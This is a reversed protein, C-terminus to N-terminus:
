DANWDPVPRSIKLLEDALNLAELDNENRYPLGRAGDNILAHTPEDRVVQLGLDRIRGVHLTMVGYIPRTFNAKCDALTSSVSLGDVDRERRLYNDATPDGNDDVWEKRPIARYVIQNCDYPQLSQPPHEDRPM